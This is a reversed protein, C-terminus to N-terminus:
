KLDKEIETLFDNPLCHESVLIGTTKWCRIWRGLGNISLVPCDFDNTKPLSTLYNVNLNEFKHRWNISGNRLYLGTLSGSHTSTILLQHDQWIDLFM